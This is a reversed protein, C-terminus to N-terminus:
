EEMRKTFTVKTGIGESSQIEVTFNLYTAVKFMIQLGFGSKDKSADKLFVRGAKVQDIIEESILAGKNFFSFYMQNNNIGSTIVIKENPIGYKVANSLANRILIEFLSSNSNELIVEAEAKWEISIGKDLALDRWEEILENIINQCEVKETLLFQQNNVKSMLLLANVTKKIKQLSNQMDVLKELQVQSLQDADFLAEVKAQLVSIPTKLEHSVQSIFAREEYFANQIREMLHNIAQDLEVFEETASNVQTATFEGPRKVLQLKNKIIWRFPKLIRETFYTDLVGSLLLFLILGASLVQFLLSKIFQITELSRGIELLYLANNEQFAYAYVRYPVSKGDLIRDENFISDSVIFDDELKEILVYEEKLINYSGFGQEVNEESIFQQIGEEQIIRLVQEKKALLDEDTFQYAFYQLAYPAL